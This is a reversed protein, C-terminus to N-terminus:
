SQGQLQCDYDRFVYEDESTEQVDDDPNYDADEKDSEEVEQESESDGEVESDEKKM